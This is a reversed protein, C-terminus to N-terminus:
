GHNEGCYLELYKKFFKDRYKKPLSALALSLCKDRYEQKQKIGLFLTVINKMNDM